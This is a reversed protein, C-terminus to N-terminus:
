RLRVWRRALWRVLQGTRGTAASEVRVDAAAQMSLTGYTPYVHIAEALAGVRLGHRLAVVWENIMEGAQPAVITVGLLKESGRYVLKLFGSDAGDTHARDVRGIPWIRVRVANGFRQRVEAEQLGAHAVEPQTFTTWPVLDTTGHTRGPLLANRVALAGQWAAYHTFQLGGTCDGAAYVHPNSTRLNRDTQIGRASFTIRAKELDLGELRAKRGVAVLLADGSFTGSSGRVGIADREQWCQEVSTNLVVQIGEKQFVEVLAGSAEAEDHPLIREAADILTVRSGLRAFAQALECGVPGAGMVILREPLEKLGWVTEYTLFPVDELGPIPPVVPGAGTCVMIRRGGIEQGNVMLSRPGAFRARGSHIDIGRAELVSPSEAAFVDEVVEHVHEMVKTFDLRIGADALGFKGARRGERIARAVALLTKSPVCGTWTCDGGVREAEILAVKAGLQRAYDAATLGASGAGVVMVDYQERSEKSM